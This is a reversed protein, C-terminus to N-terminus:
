GEESTNVHILVICSWADGDEWGVGRFEHVWPPPKWREYISAHCYRVLLVSSNLLTPQPLADM